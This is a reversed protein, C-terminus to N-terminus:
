VPHRGLSPRSPHQRGHDARLSAEDALQPLLVEQPTWSPDGLGVRVLNCAFAIAWAAKQRYAEPAFSTGSPVGFGAFSYRM